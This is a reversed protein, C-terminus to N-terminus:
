PVTTNANSVREPLPPRAKMMARFTISAKTDVNSLVDATSPPVTQFFLEASVELAGAPVAMRYTVVDSAPGFTPDNGIGVPKTMSATVHAASWGAPLLRNDKVYGTARLLVHTPKGSADSMVSEYVQVQEDSTIEDRHPLLVEPGDIRKGKTDVLRGLDDFRGSDFVVSGAADEVTLRIWARRSPYATPFKHGSHNDVAVELTLQGNSRTAKAIRITAAKAIMSKARQESELLASAPVDSGTWTVNQALLGLMYANGGVLTHRGVPTRAEIFPPRNSIKTTIFQGDEDTTPM